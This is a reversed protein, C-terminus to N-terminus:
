VERRGRQLYQTHGGSVHRPFIALIVVASSGCVWGPAILIALRRAHPRTHGCHYDEGHIFVPMEEGMMVCTRDFHKKVSVRFSAVESIHIRTVLFM